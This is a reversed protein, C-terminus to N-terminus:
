ISRDIPDGQPRSCRGTWETVDCRLYPSADGSNAFKEAAQRYDAGTVAELLRWGEVIADPEVVRRATAFLSVGAWSALDETAHTVKLLVDPRAEINRMTQGRPNIMFGLSRGNVFHTAEIAYPRGEPTVTCITAWNSAKVLDWIEEDTM